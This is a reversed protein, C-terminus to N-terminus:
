IQEPLPLLQLISQIILHPNHILFNALEVHDIVVIFVFEDQNRNIVDVVTQLVAVVGADVRHVVEPVTAEAGHNMELLQKPILLKHSNRGRQQNGVFVDCRALAVLNHHFLHGPRPFREREGNVRSVAVLNGLPNGIMQCQTVFLAATSVIHVDDRGVGDERKMM